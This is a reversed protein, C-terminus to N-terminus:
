LSICYVFGTRRGNLEMEPLAPRGEQNALYDLSKQDDIGDANPSNRLFNRNRSKSYSSKTWMTM